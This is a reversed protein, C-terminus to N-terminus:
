CTCVSGDQGMRCALQRSYITKSIITNESQHMMPHQKRSGDLRIFPGPQTKGEDFRNMWSGKFYIANILIMIAKQLLEASVLKSIRENTQDAVWKNIIEAAVPDNFELSAVVSCYNEEILRIFEASPVIGEQMWISNAIALDVKPDLSKQMSILAANSENVQELNLGSLGLTEAMLEKTKGEAGNYTM